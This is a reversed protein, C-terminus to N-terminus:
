NRLSFGLGFHFFTGESDELSKMLGIEPRIGFNNNWAAFGLNIAFTADRDSGLPVILKTSPNIEIQESLPFSLLLTPQVEFTDDTEIDEGFAAGFPIYAAVKKEVIQFKPGVGFVFFDGINGFDEGPISPLELRARLDMTESLGAGFQIGLNTQIHESEGDNSFTVISAAPTIETNGKGLTEASQFDSFITVCGSFSVLLCFATPLILLRINM